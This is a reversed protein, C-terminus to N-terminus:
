CSCGEQVTEPMGSVVFVDHIYRFSKSIRAPSNFRLMKPLYTLLLSLHVTAYIKSTILTLVRVIRRDCLMTTQIVRGWYSIQTPLGGLGFQFVSHYRFLPAFGIPSAARSTWLSMNQPGLRCTGLLMNNCVFCLQDM